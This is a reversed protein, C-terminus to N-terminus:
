KAFVGCFISECEGRSEMEIGSAKAENTKIWKGEDNVMFFDIKEIRGKWIRRIREMDYVRYGKFTAAKGFPATVIVRGTKNLLDYLGEMCKHDGDEKLGIHEITSILTIIDFSEPPLDAELINGQVFRFNPHRLTCKKKDLGWVEFGLGALQLPFFTGCCGIDLVRGQELSINKLVWGYEIIRESRSIDWLFPKYYGIKYLSRSLFWVFREPLLSAIIKKIM